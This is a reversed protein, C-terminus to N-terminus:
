THEIVVRTRAYEMRHYACLFHSARWRFAAGTWVMTGISWEPDALAHCVPWDCFPACQRDNWMAPQGTSVHRWIDGDHAIPEWCQSCYVAAGPIPRARLVPKGTSLAVSRNM